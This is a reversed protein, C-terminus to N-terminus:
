NFFYSSFRLDQYGWAALLKTSFSLAGKFPWQWSEFILWFNLGSGDWKNLFTKAIPPVGGTEGEAEAEWEDEAGAKAQALCDKKNEKGLKQAMEVKIKQGWIFVIIFLLTQWHAINLLEINNQM